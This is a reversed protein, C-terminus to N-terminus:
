LASRVPNAIAGPGNTASSQDILAPREARSEPPAQRRDDTGQAQRARTGPPDRDDGVLRIVERAEQWTQHQRTTGRPQHLRREESGGAGQRRLPRSRTARHQVGGTLHATCHAHRQDDHQETLSVGSRQPREVTAPGQQDDRADRGRHGHAKIASRDDLRGSVRLAVSAPGEKRRRSSAGRNTLYLPCRGPPSCVPIKRCSICVPVPRTSIPALV